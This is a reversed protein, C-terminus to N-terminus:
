IRLKAQNVKMQLLNVYQDDPVIQMDIVIGEEEELKDVMKQLGKYNRSQQVMASVKRTEQKGTQGDSDTSNGGCGSLMGLSMTVVCVGSLVKLLKKKKM